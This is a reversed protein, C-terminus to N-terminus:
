GIVFDSYPPVPILEPLEEVIKIVWPEPHLVGVESRIWLTDGEPAKDRSKYVIARVRRGDYKRPGPTLDKITLDIEQGEPLSELSVVFTQYEKAM